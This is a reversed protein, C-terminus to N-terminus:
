DPKHPGIRLSATAIRIELLFCLLSAILSLMSLIFLLGILPALSFSSFASAFLLAVVSAVLLAAITSLTIARNMLRARRTIVLLWALLDSMEQEAAFQLRQEMVRARDVIRALRSTLMGLLVGIGSLLFVPALSLQIAHAVDSIPAQSIEFVNM